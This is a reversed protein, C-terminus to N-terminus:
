KVAAAAASGLDIVTSNQAEPRFVIKRKPSAAKTKQIAANMVATRDNILKANTLHVTYAAKGRAEALMEFIEPDPNGDKGNASIVYHDATVSKLFDARMNRNSGHHPMKLVDFHVTDTRSKLFGAMVLGDWIFNGRADGTLLIRRMTSGVKMEAVAVISSLNPVSTDSFAAAEALTIPGKKVAADWQAQLKELQAKTPGIVHLKLGDQLSVTADGSGAPMVMGRFPLNRRIALKEAIARLERGQDVSAVIAASHRGQVPDSSFSSAEAGGASAKEAVAALRSQLEKAGDGVVENFSNFWLTQILDPLGEGNEKRDRLERFWELIGLIHDADIHSVMVMEIRLKGDTGAQSARLEKLRPLLRAEYVPGPGGDIVMLRPKEPKGFHLMLCDGEAAELVELRFM